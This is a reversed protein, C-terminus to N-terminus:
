GDVGAVSIAALKNALCADMATILAQYPVRDESRVTVDRNDPHEARVAQLVESLRRRDWAEGKKTIEHLVVGKKSVTYGSAKILVTLDLGEDHLVVPVDPSAQNPRQKVDIKSVQTWVPTMLLFSILVSLLDICPILNIQFDVPKKGGSVEPPPAGGGAM